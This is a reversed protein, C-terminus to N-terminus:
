HDCGLIEMAKRATPAKLMAIYEVYSPVLHWVADEEDPLFTIGHKCIEFTGVGPKEAFHGEHSVYRCMLVRLRTRPRPWWMEGGANALTATVGADPATETM